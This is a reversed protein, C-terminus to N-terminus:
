SKLDDVVDEVNNSALAFGVGEFGALKLTNVGIVQGETNILPGGSNGPNIPVDIQIYLNGRSDERNVASVIGQTVSFDLGGPNGVAIVKEGVKVNDSNGFSLKKLGSADIKLLAIDANIDTGVLSVAYAGGESTIVSAASAGNIVHYNTVIYGGSDIIFGSGVGINTKVSVVSPLVEDIVESFDKFESKLGSIQEELSSLQKQSEIKLEGLEGTLGEIEKGSKVVLSDM